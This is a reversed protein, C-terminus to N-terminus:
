KSAEVFCAANFTTGRPIFITDGPKGPLSLPKGDPGKVVCGPAKSDFMLRQAAEARTRAADYAAGDVVGGVVAATAGTAVSALALMLVFKKM